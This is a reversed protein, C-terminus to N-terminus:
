GAKTRAAAADLAQELAPLDARLGVRDFEDVLDRLAAVTDDDRAGKGFCALARTRRILLDSWPLPEDSTFAELATACAEAKDWETWALASDMADRHFWLTCHGVCGDAIIRAGEALVNDREARDEAVVALVGLLWPGWLGMAKAERCIDLAGKVERVAEDRRGTLGLIRGLQTYCFPLWQRAGIREGVELSQERQSRAEDIEGLDVLIAGGISRAVMEARHNGVTRAFNAAELINEGATKLDNKYYRTMERPAINAAEIAGFGHRSSLAVCRAFYEHATVMRGQSYVADALGSLARAEDEPSDARHAFDRAMEHQELCGDVRSTLFYISGRHYHIQALETVFNHSKAVAEAKDLRELAEDYRSIVRMGAAMGIWAQCKDIDNQALELAAEFAEIAEETRGLNALVRARANALAFRDQPLAAIEIGREVARLASDYRYRGIEAVAAILYAAAADASEARDLHEATLGANRNEFWTGARLHLALRQDTLLSGYVGDRILAHSFLYEDGFPRVLYHAVLPAADYDKNGVLHRLVELSFRQGLVSAAQLAARDSAALNDMRALVISQISGPVQRDSSEEANRLLQDLFLPNGEAREVCTAALGDDADFYERALALADAAPLPGLDM